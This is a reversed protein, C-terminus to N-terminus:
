DYSFTQNTHWVNLAWVASRVFASETTGCPCTFMITNNDHSIIAHDTERAREGHEGSILQNENFLSRLNEYLNMECLKEKIAFSLCSSYPSTDVLNAFMLM